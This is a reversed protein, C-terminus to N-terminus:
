ATEPESEEQYWSCPSGACEELAIMVLRSGGGECDLGDIMYVDAEIVPVPM